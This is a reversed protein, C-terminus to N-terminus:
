LSGEKLQQLGAELRDAVTRAIEKPDVTSGIETPLSIQIITNAVTAHVVTESASADALSGVVVSVDTRFDEALPSYTVELDTLSEESESPLTYYFETCNSIATAYYEWSNEATTVDAYQLVYQHMEITDGDPTSVSTEHHKQLSGVAPQLDPMILPLCIAPFSTEDEDNEPHVFIPSAEGAPEVEPFLEDVDGDSLLLVDLEDGIFVETAATDIQDQATGKQTSSSDTLPGTLAWASVGVVIASVAIVSGTIRLFARKSVM